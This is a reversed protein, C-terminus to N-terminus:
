RVPAVRVMFILTCPACVLDRPLDLLTRCPRVCLMCSCPAGIYNECTPRARGAKQGIRRRIASVQASLAAWRPDGYTVITVIKSRNRLMIYVSRRHRAVTAAARSRLIARLSSGLHPSRHAGHGAAAHGSLRRRGTSDGQAQPLDDANPYAEAALRRCCAGPPSRSSGSPSSPWSRRAPLFAERIHARPAQKGNNKLDRRARDAEAFREPPSNMMVGSTTEGASIEVNSFGKGIGLYVGTWSKAAVPTDLSSPVLQRREEGDLADRDRHGHDHM